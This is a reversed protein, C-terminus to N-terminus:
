WDSEFDISRFRLSVEEKEKPQSVASIGRGYQNYLDIMHQGLERGRALILPVVKTAHRGLFRNLKATTLSQDLVPPKINQESLQQFIGSIEKPTSFIDQICFPLFNQNVIDDDSMGKQKYFDVSNTYVFEEEEFSYRRNSRNSEGSVAHIMEHVIIDEPNVEVQMLEQMVTEFKTKAKTGGITIKDKCVVVRMHHVYFGGAHGYGAADIADSTAMYIPVDSIDIDPFKEDLYSKIAPYDTM